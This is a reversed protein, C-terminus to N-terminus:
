YVGTESFGMATGEPNASMGSTITVHRADGAASTCRTSWGRKGSSHSVRSVGPQQQVCQSTTYSGAGSISLEGGSQVVTVTGSPASPGGSPKEGCAEGWDKTNWGASMGSASWTGSLTADDDARAGRALAVSAFVVFIGILARISLKM